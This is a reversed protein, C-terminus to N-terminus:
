TTTPEFGTASVKRNKFKKIIPKHLEEPLQKNQPTSKIACKNGLMTIGSGATEKDLYKYVMSALGRQYGDYKPNQGINTAKDRLVKDAATRKALNIFDGYAM